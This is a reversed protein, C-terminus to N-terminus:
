MGLDHNGGAANFLRQGVTNLHDHVALAAAANRASQAYWTEANQNAISQHAAMLVDFKDVEAQTWGADLKKRSM